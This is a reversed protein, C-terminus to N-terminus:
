YLYKLKISRQIGWGYNGDYKEWKGWDYLYAELLNGQKDYVYEYRHYKPNDTDVLYKNHKGIWETISLYREIGNSISIGGYILFDLLSLNTDNVKCKDIVYDVRKRLVCEDRLEYEGFCHDSLFVYTNTITNTNWERLTEKSLYYSNTNTDFDYLYNMEWKSGVDQGKIPTETIRTIHNNWDFEFEYQYINWDAEYDKFILRGNNLRYENKLGYKETLNNHGYCKVGILSGTSNYEFKLNCDIGGKLSYLKVESVMKLGHENVRQAFSYVSTSIMFIVALKLSKSIQGM